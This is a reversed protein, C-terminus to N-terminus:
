AATSVPPFVRNFSERGFRRLYLEMAEIVTKKTDVDVEFSKKDLGALSQPTNFKITEKVAKLDSYDGARKGIFSRIANFEFLDIKELVLPEFTHLVSETGLPFTTTGVSITFLRIHLLAKTSLGIAIAQFWVSSLFLGELKIAGGKVLQSLGLMGAFSIVGYVLAYLYLQWCRWLHDFTRPYKSTILELWAIFTAIIFALFAPGINLNGM